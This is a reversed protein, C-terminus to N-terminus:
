YVTVDIKPQFTYDETTAVNIFEPAIDAVDPDREYLYLHQCSPGYGNVDLFEFYVLQERYNNTILTIINPIHLENINNIDEIYTKIDQVIDDAILKDATSQAELAFKLDVAVNDIFNKNKTTDALKIWGEFPSLIYGWQGRVRTITVIQDYQLTGVIFDDRNEDETTSYVNLKKISVRVKYNQSSPINYYFTKSPGFTNVFKLDIDFTDELVNLCEEIYKRREEIDYIFDQILEENSLYGAKLVPLRSLTYQYIYRGDETMQYVPALEKYPNGYADTHEIETYIPNGNEDMKMLHQVSVNSRMMNSYDHYFDIGNEVSLVNCLTYRSLDEYHYNDMVAQVDEDNM